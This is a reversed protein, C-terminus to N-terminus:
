ADLLYLWLSFHEFGALFSSLFCDCASWIDLLSCCNLSRIITFNVSMNDAVYVLIVRVKCHDSMCLSWGRTIVLGSGLWCILQYDFVCDNFSQMRWLLFVLSSQLPYLSQGRKTDGIRLVCDNFNRLCWFLPVRLYIGVWQLEEHVSPSSAISASSAIHVWLEPQGWHTPLRHERVKSNYNIQRM